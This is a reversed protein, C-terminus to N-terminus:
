SGAAPRQCRNVIWRTKGTPSPPIEGVELLAIAAEEGLAKRFATHIQSLNEQLGDRQHPVYRFVFDNSTTQELQWERILQRNLSVGIFHRVFVSSLLTGDSTTLMDDARGQLSALRPFPLGCPCPESESWVGMDGIEYRIMPFTQNQLLTVLIRGTIGPVCPQGEDDVVEVFVTPSYVHLGAHATCECAIDACERSGYKDFVEAQFVRELLARWESTVTGACAMITKFRPHVLDQEEVFLALSAAADVYAMLHQIEPHTFITQLHQRLEAERARFANMPVEGLLNRLVSRDISERQQMLDQESGWLRFYRTGLPFGCLQQSFLRSARGADRGSADHVVATPIGTTGGTKVVLWDYRKRSVSDPSAIEARHSDIVISAFRERLRERTLIPFRRLFGAASEGPRRTPRRERYHPSNKVAHDLLQGLREDTAKDLDAATLRTWNQFDRWRNGVRSGILRQSTFYAAKRM